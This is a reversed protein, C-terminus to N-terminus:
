RIKMRVPVLANLLLRSCVKFFIPMFLVRLDYPTQKNTPAVIHHLCLLFYAELRAAVLLPLRSQKKKEMSVSGNDEKSGPRVVTYCSYSDWCSTSDCM